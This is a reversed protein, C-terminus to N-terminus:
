CAKYGKVLLAKLGDFKKSIKGAMEGKAQNLLEYNRKKKHIFINKPIYIKLM